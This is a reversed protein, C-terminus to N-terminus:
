DDTKEQGMLPLSYIYAILSGVSHYPSNKESMASDNDWIFRRNNNTCYEEISLMLEVLMLSSLIGNKGMLPTTEDIVPPTVGEEDLIRLIATCIFDFVEKKKM